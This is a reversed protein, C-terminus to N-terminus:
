LSAPDVARGSELAREAAVAVALTAAADPPTCVVATPDGEGVARFFERVSRELPHCAAGISISDGRSTGRLTFAPDLDLRLTAESAVVDLAYTGPQDPRTWAVVVTALAGSTLELLITVADDIDGEGGASRALRVRSAAAQVSGVEGGVARALDLHHSGRELLNGGGAGRDLFWPRSQTPGISTGVLLGIEQGHLVQRLDDLIDIAHWQYGVACVTGSREAAAVIAAADDLSRAIPKELYIPLGRELAAVATERHARPPVCIFLAGLDEEDLLRRWDTYARARADDAFPRLREEDLDCVAAVEVGDLSRLVGLHEKAIWGTGVIGVRTTDM